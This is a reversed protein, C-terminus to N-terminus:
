NSGPRLLCVNQQLIVISRVRIGEKSKLIRIDFINQKTKKTKRENIAGM